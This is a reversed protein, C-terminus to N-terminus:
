PGGSVMRVFDMPRVIPIGEYTKLRLLDRDGSVILDARGLVACAIIRDDDPDTPVAREVVDPRVIDAKRVLVRLMQLLEREHWGFKHRLKDALEGIIAPSLVLRFQGEYLPTWMASLAGEPFHLSSILVNTDLVVRLRGHRDSPM